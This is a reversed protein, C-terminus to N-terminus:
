RLALSWAQLAQSPRGYAISPESSGQAEYEAQFRRLETAKQEGALLKVKLPKISLGNTPLFNILTRVDLCFAGFIFPAGVIQSGQLQHDPKTTQHSLLPKGDAVLVLSEFGWVM